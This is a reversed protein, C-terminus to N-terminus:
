WLKAIKYNMSLSILLHGEPSASSSKSIWVKGEESFADIHKGLHLMYQASLSFDFERTLNFHAGAGSQLAMSWRGRSNNQENNVKIETYDFCHGAALYPVIKSQAKNFKESYFLMSWGFHYDNRRAFEGIDSIIYDSFWETNVNPSIQLRVQGGLGMGTKEQGTHRFASAVVRSGLSFNGSGNSAEVSLVLLGFAFVTILYKM